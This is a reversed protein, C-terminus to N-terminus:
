KQLGSMSLWTLLQPSAAYPQPWGQRPQTRNEVLRPPSSPSACALSPFHEHLLALRSWCCWPEQSCLCTWGEWWWCGSSIVCTSPHHAAWLGCGSLNVGGFWTVNYSFFRWCKKSTTQHKGPPKSLLSDAQMTPSWPKIGPDPLDGPPPCILRSWYEQRSFGMSLPAQSAVPSLTAFLRVHRVHSLM